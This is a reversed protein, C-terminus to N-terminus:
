CLNNCMLVNEHTWSSAASFLSVVTLRTVQPFRTVRSLSAQATLPRLGLLNGTNRSQWPHWSLCSPVSARTVPMHCMRSLLHSNVLPRQPFAPPLCAPCFACWADSKSRMQQKHWQSWGPYSLHGAVSFQALPLHKSGWEPNVVHGLTATDKKNTALYNKWKLFYKCM